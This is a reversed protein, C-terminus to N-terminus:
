NCKFINLINNIAPRNKPNYNFCNYLDKRLFKPISGSKPYLQEYYYEKLEEPNGNHNWVKRESYLEFLTIGTSWVDSADNADHGFLLMEPPMYSDILIDEPNFKLQEESKFRKSSALGIIKAAYNKSDIMVNMPKMGRHAIFKYHLYNLGQCIEKGIKNKMTENLNYNKKTNKNFLINHLKDGDIFESVMNYYLNCSYAGHLKIINPHKLNRLLYIEDLFLFLQREDPKKHM